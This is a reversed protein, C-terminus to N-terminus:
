LGRGPTHVGRNPARGTRRLQSATGRRGTRITDTRGRATTITVAGSGTETSTTRAQYRGSVLEGLNKADTLGQSKMDKFIEGWGRGDWAVAHYGDSIAGLAAHWNRRNGGIGHLFVVTSM